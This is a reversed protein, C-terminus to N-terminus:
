KIELVAKSVLARIWVLGLGELVLGSLLCVLGLKSHMYWTIANTGLLSSLIIGIVPLAALISITAKVSALETAILQKDSRQNILKHIIRDLSIGLPAGTRDSVEIVLSIEEFTVLDFFECEDRMIRSFSTGTALAQRTNPLCESPLVELARQLATANSQGGLIQSKFLYLADLQEEFSIKRNRSLRLNISDFKPLSPTVWKPIPGLSMYAAVVLLMVIM